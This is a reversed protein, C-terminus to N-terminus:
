GVLEIITHRVGDSVADTGGLIVVSTPDLAFLESAVAGPISNSRVLLIPASRAGAVAGATLADPFDGGTAIFVADATDYVYQAVLASTTYRDPGGIPIVDTSAFAELQDLVSQGITTGGGVVVIKSPKLERLVTRTPEPITSSTVLVVPAGEAAAAPAAVLADPFSTGVAVFVTDVQGPFSARAIDAATSYRDAGAIRSVPAYNSLTTAVSSSIASTGGLVVIKDPGLRAIEASTASPISTRRVLLVPGPDAVALPAAALADPFNTGTAIYVTGSGLNFEDKSVAAATEYRDQGWM